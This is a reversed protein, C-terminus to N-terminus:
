YNSRLFEFAYRIADQVRKRGKVVGDNPFGVIIGCAYKKLWLASPSDGRYNKIDELFQDVGLHVKWDDSKPRVEAKILPILKDFLQHLEIGEPIRSSESKPMRAQEAIRSSIIPEAYEEILRMLQTNSPAKTKEINSQAFTDINRKILDEIQPEIMEFFEKGANRKYTVPTTTIEGSSRPTTTTTRKIKKRTKKGTAMQKEFFGM